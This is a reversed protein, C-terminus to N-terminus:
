QPTYPLTLSSHVTGVRGSADHLWERIAEAGRGEEVDRKVRAGSEEMMGREDLIARRLMMDTREARRTAQARSKVCASAAFPGMMVLLALPSFQRATM